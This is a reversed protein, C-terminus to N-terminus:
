LEADEIKCLGSFIIKTNTQNSQPQSFCSSDKSNRLLGLLVDVVVRVVRSWGGGGSIVVDRVRCRRRGGVGALRAAADIAGGEGEGEGGGTWARQRPPGADGRRYHDAYCEVAQARKEVGGTEERTGGVGGAM